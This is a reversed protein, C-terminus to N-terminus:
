DTQKGDPVERPLRNLSILQRSGADGPSEARIEYVTDEQLPNWALLRRDDERVLRGVFISLQAFTDDAAIDGLQWGDGLELLRHFLEAGLRLREPARGDQYEYTIIVQHHLRDLGEQPPTLNPALGFRGLPKEIWFTTETPTRPTIRLPVHEDRDLAQPPLTGLRAIGRCLRKKLEERESRESWLDRFNTLHVGRALGLSSPDGTLDQLTKESWEFYARRRASSIVDASANGNPRTSSEQNLHRDIRPHSELAPDLRALEGLVDGQRGDSGTDFARDWFPAVDGPDDHYDSCYRVGFLIYVLASRLERVTIHTEGRLHVAQLAEFLRERTRSRQTRPDQDAAGGPGFQQKAQFVRCREQASCTRCPEWIKSAREGGYLSNVLDELFQTDLDTGDPPIAGVLSRQNLDIFRIHPQGADEEGELFSNLASTLPTKGESGAREIWELLRGDNIALLHVIDDSPSGQHFPELFEDLLEDASRENWAASGDLNMRVTLGDAMRGELIRTASQSSGLGLRGWLHQLLATKGDGANGSLVVLRVRRKVIAQYLAEELRTEVYTDSAFDSDLGRTERNGWRSGPYSMLLSRLWPVENASRKPEPRPTESVRPEDLLSIAAHADAFGGGRTSGPGLARELFRSLLPHRQRESPQLSTSEDLPSPTREFFAEFFARALSRVDEPRDDHGSDPEGVRRAREGGILALSDGAVVLLRRLSIDGHALENRHFTDLTELVTRLWRMALEDLSTELDEALEDLMGTYENLPEGEVWPLLALIEGDSWQSAIERVPSWAERRLRRHAEGHSELLARGTTEDDAVRALFTQGEEKSEGDLEVVKFTTEGGSSGLRAVIRFDRKSFPIVRGEPWLSPLDAEPPADDGGALKEFAAQLDEPSPRRALSPARGPELVRLAGASKEGSRGEFLLALASCLAGVDEASSNSGASAINRAHDLGFLVPADDQGVLITEPTVSQRFGAKHLADLAGIVGAAFRLRASTKWTQDAARNRLSAAEPDGVTFFQLEGGYGPADQLSDLIRPAFTHLQIAHLVDFIERPSRGHGPDRDASLDFLHLFVRDQRVSHRARYVRHFKRDTPTQLHLDAYGALRHLQGAEALPARPSLAHALDGIQQPTLVASADTGLVERWGEDLGHFHVGRYVEGVLEKVRSPKETSFLFGPVWPLTPVTRRLKGAVRKAKDTVRDAEHEVIEENRKMWSAAWHKVEIVRVGPPGIAIIDIEDSQRRPNPSFRLNTLLRWEEDGPISILRGRLKDIARRESDNVAPGCPIVAVSM